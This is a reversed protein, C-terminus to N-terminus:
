KNNRDAWDEVKEMLDPMDCELALKLALMTRDVLSQRAKPTKDPTPIVLDSKESVDDSKEAKTETKNGGANQASVGCKVRLKSLQSNFLGKDDKKMAKFDCAIKVSSLFKKWAALRAGEKEGKNCPIAKFLLAIEDRVAAVDKDFKVLGLLGTVYRGQLIGLKDNFSKVEKPDVVTVPIIVKNAKSM